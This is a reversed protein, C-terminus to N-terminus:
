FNIYDRTYKYNKNIKDNIKDKDFLATLMGYVRCFGVQYTTENKFAKAITVKIYEPILEEKINSTNGNEFATEVIKPIYIYKSEDEYTYKVLDKMYDYIQKLTKKDNLMTEINCLEEFYKIKNEDYRRRKAM